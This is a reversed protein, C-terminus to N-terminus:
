DTEIDDLLEGGAAECEARAAPDQGVRASDFSWVCLDGARWYWAEAGGMDCVGCVDSSWCRAGEARLDCTALTTPIVGEYGTSDPGEIEGAEGQTVDDEVCATMVVLVGLLVWSRADM